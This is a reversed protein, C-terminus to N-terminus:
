KNLICALGILFITTPSFGLPHLNCRLCVISAAVFFVGMILKRNAQRPQWGEIADAWEYLQNSLNRSMSSINRVVKKFFGTLRAKLMLPDAQWRYEETANVLVEMFRKCAERGAASSELLRDLRDDCNVVTGGVGDVWDSLDSLLSAVNRLDDLQPFIGKLRPTLLLPDTRWRNSEARDRAISDAKSRALALAEQFASPDFRLGLCIQSAERDVGFHAVIERPLQVTEDADSSRRRGNPWPELVIRVRPLDQLGHLFDDQTMLPPELFRSRKQGPVEIAMVGGPPYAFWKGEDKFPNTHLNKNCWEVIHTPIGGGIAEIRKAWDM